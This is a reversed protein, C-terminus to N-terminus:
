PFVRLKELIYVNFVSNVYTYLFKEATSSLFKLFSM